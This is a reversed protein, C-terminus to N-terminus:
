RGMRGSLIKFVKLNYNKKSDFVTKPKGDDVEEEEKIEGDELEDEGEAKTESKTEKDKGESIHTDELAAALTNANAAEAAAPLSSPETTAM